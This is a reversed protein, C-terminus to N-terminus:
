KKQMFLEVPKVGKSTNCKKCAVCLNSEDYKAGGNAKALIHDITALNPNTNNIALDKPEKGGIELHPKSCYACVLDGEKALIRKLYVDRFDLWAQLSDEIFDEDQYMLDNKLLLGAALPHPQPNEATFICHNQSTSGSGSKKTIIVPESDTKLIHVLYRITSFKKTMM